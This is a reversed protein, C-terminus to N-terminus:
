IYGSVGVVINKRFEICFGDFGGYPSSGIFEIIYFWRQKNGDKCKSIPYGYEAIAEKATKVDFYKRKSSEKKDFILRFSREFHKNSEAALLIERTEGKILLKVKAFRPERVIELIELSTGRNYIAGNYVNSSFGCICKDTFVIQNPYVTPLIDKDLFIIPHRLFYQRGVLHM